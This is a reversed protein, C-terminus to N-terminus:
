LNSRRNDLIIMHGALRQNNDTSNVVKNFLRTATKTKFIIRHAWEEMSGYFGALNTNSGTRDLVGAVQRSGPRFRWSPPVVESHLWSRLFVALSCKFTPGDSSFRYFLCGYGTGDLFTKKEGKGGMQLQPAWQFISSFFAHDDKFETKRGCNSLLDNKKSMAGPASLATDPKTVRSAAAWASLFAVWSAWGFRVIRKVKKWPTLWTETTLTWPKIHKKMEGARNETDRMNEKGGPSRQSCQFSSFPTHYASCRTQQPNPYRENPGPSQGPIRELCNTSLVSLCTKKLIWYVFLASWFLFLLLYLTSRYM